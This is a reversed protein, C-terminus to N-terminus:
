IQQKVYTHCTLKRLIQAHFLIVVEEGKAVRKYQINWISNQHMHSVVSIFILKYWILIFM